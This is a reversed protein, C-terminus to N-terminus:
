GDGATGARDRYATSSSSSIPECRGARQRIRWRGPASTSGRPPPGDSGRQHRAPAATPRGPHRGGTTTTTARDTPDSRPTSQPPAATPRRPSRTLHPRRPRGLLPRPAQAQLAQREPRPPARRHLRHVQPAQLEALNEICFAFIEDRLADDPEIGEAPQVVAKIEEGWDENPIGFVAVDGIKRSAHAAHGRDRGPLHERRGLHDHRGQPGQPVPLRGRRAPGLRRRHLLGDARNANTKEADGKYEFNALALSMYVTGEPRDARRQQDDDLIRIESGPWAKGVTGPKSSGSRRRHRDHRRGRHGRLVGHDLRGM